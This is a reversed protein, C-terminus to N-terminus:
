PNHCTYTAKFNTRKMSILFSSDLFQFTVVFERVAYFKFYILHPFAFYSDPLIVIISM